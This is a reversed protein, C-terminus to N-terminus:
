DRFPAVLADVYRHSGGAVTRWEPRGRLELMGHNAFFEALFRAPFSWMQRPDASWVASAQPVILREVFRESFGRRELWEALSPDEDSALLARAERQFRPVEALMRLFRPSALHARRAFLGNPSTSAYEFRGQEDSVGFSMDAPQTAVGLRDLLRVFRPYNRDNYVVFGTDVWHTAGAVDVRVTNAHGGPRAGAEFVSIEHRDHLLHAAVLGSVGAGVIAIRM